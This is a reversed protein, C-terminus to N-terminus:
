GKLIKDIEKVAVGVTKTEIAEKNGDIARKLYRYGPIYGSEGVRFGYEQSAPYYLRKGEKSIKVFIDNKAPDLKINYMKKGVKTRREPKLILAGKLDGLDVPANAKAAKFAISAGAKAAKTVVRQPVKELKKIMSELETM